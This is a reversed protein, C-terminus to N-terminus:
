IKLILKRLQGGTFIQDLIGALAIGLVLKGTDGEALHKVLSSPSEYPDHEDYHTSCLGTNHDCEAHWHGKRFHIQDLKEGISRIWSPNNEFDDIRYM